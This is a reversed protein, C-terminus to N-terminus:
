SIGGERLKAQFATQLAMLIKKEARDVEEAQLTAKPSRFVFRMALSTQDPPIGPGAYRDVLDFSELHPVAAREVAQKIDQYAVARGVLFALDRVVAPMRPPPAYAFPQPTKALITGLGIEAAFVPGKVGAADLLAQRVRGLVGVREGKYVVVTSAGDDFLPSAAPEFTLPSYRLDELGAEVAGKLRYLDTPRSKTRWDAGPLPGASLVGLALEEGPVKEDEWRYVNGVEFIHVGDAGRNRNLALNQLLGPLLVTRLAAAHVSFPNRLAVPARGSEFAAEREPDAFSPNIVEDFGYRFFAQSLRGLRVGDNPVHDLVQLPPLVAPINDYGFFRAVEEILDAEGEIDVRFSPVAVRWRAGKSPKLEFGLGTLVREIFPAPVEAGLLGAVRGARLVVEKPKRPKPYVDLVGQSTRGGFATMMSAAMVAARPPFGVDTGREFRYSADTQLDLAKRTRRISAPDFTASEIFVDRTEESVATELGGIVGALAVPRKEDAIVLMEPDLALDRGDLALLREGKKARRVIVRAGALKALDFAHIPQGTAFLVANSVDVINSTPRLGMAEVRARLADPSPGVKVGRVVLGAYRPCLDEDLVQVEVASATPEGLDALPWSPEKLPRGLLVAVERAVGLHGLTDPRNAYTELDLIVDGGREEWEEAVLGAMTLRDVLERLPLDVEVYDRLWNLSIKM